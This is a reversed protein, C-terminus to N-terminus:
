RYYLFRRYYTFNYVIYICIMNRSISITHESSLRILVHYILVAIGTGIIVVIMLISFYFVTVKKRFLYDELHLMLSTGVAGMILCTIQVYWTNKNICFYVMFCSFFIWVISFFVMTLGFLIKKRKMFCVGLGM